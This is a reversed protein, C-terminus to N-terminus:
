KQRFNSSIKGTFTGFGYLDNALQREDVSQEFSQDVCNTIGCVPVHLTKVHIMQGPSCGAMQDPFVRIQAEPWDALFNGPLQRM